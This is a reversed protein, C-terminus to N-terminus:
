VSGIFARLRHFTVYSLKYEVVPVPGGDNDPVSIAEFVSKM